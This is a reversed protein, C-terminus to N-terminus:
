WVLVKGGSSGKRRQLFLPDERSARAQQHGRFFELVQARDGWLAPQPPAPVSPIHEPSCSGPTQHQAAGVDRLPRLGSTHLTRTCTPRPMRPVGHGPQSPPSPLVTSDPFSAQRLPPQGLM